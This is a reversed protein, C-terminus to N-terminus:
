DKGRPPEVRGGEPAVWWTKLMWAQPGYYLPLKEPHALRNWYAVRHTAAHYHPVLWYGHRLVRDLARAATVLDERTRSALLTRVLSDVAPERIGPLNDSGKEDAAASTISTDSCPPNM